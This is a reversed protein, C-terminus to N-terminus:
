LDHTYSKRQESTYQYSSLGGPLSAFWRAVQRPLSLGMVREKYLHVGDEKRTPSGPWCIRIWVPNAEWNINRNIENWWYIKKHIYKSCAIKFSQYSWCRERWWLKWICCWCCCPWLKRLPLEHTWKIRRTVHRRQVQENGVCLTVLDTRPWGIKPNSERPRFFANRIKRQHLSCSWDRFLFM